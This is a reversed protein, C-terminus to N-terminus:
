GQVWIMGDLEITANPYAAALRALGADVVKQFVVFDPGDGNITSNGNAAWDSVLSTNGHAYKILAVTVINTPVGNTLAYYDALARGFTLEPGFTKGGGLASFGPRLTTLTGLTGDGNVAGGVLYCYFPVDNQPNLLNAPLGNTLARGDANSQGGQLYVKVIQAAAATGSPTATVEASDASENSSGDVASVKYYYTTGNVLGVDTFSTGTVNMITVEAGSSTSRKVNYSVAGYVAQWSLGVQGDGPTAVLSPPTFGVALSGSGSFNGGFGLASLQAPTYTGTPVVNGTITMSKVGIAKDLQLIAEARPMALAMNVNVASNSLEVTAAVTSNGINLTGGFGSWDGTVLNTGTPGYTTGDSGASSVFTLNSTGTLTSDIIFASAASASIAIYSDCRNTITGRLTVTGGSTSSALRVIPYLNATSVNNYNTFVINASASGGGQEKVLLTTGPPIILSDGLFVSANADTPTRLLGTGFSVGYFSSMGSSNSTNTYLVYNNGATPVLTGTWQSGLNWHKGSAGATAAELIDAAFSNSALFLLASIVCIGSLHIKKTLSKM